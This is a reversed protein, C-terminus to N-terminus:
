ADSRAKAHALEAGPPAIWIEGNIELELRGDNNVGRLVGNRRDAATLSVTCPAGVGHLRARISQLAERDLPGPRISAGLAAILDDCMADIDIEAGIEDRVSTAFARIDEPLEESRINANVGVGILIAAGHEVHIVEVLAGLAKRGNILVDNPWKLEVTATAGHRRMTTDLAQVCALGVRLGLGDLLSELEGKVPWILTCWLGGKPSAWQRGFRGVGGTQTAARIVVPRDGARGERVMRRAELSTSDIEDFHVIQIDSTPDTM